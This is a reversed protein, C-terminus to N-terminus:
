KKNFYEMINKALNEGVLAELEDFSAKKIGEVGKFHTLLKTRTAPGVGKIKELESFVVSKQHKSRFATIAFRHVEDQLCALFNFLESNKEIPFMTDGDTIGRTKHFDDKVLGFLPIDEGFTELLPKIANVHGRGGDLIILDPLPLFKAKSSDLEGNKILDEEKYAENIRRSIVERMSQYDDAGEVTKINYKRYHKKAPLANQYVIQAGVSNQGSINSIDYSEIRAPIKELNLLTKLQSLMRNQYTESRNKLVRDKYLSERANNQVMQMIKAKEGRKPVVFNVRHGCLKGLWESIDDLDDIENSIYVTKPMFSATFYFQKVFSEMIEATNGKENELTFYEAGVAKGGRYYFVQICFSDDENYIGIYDENGDKASSVKQKESISSIHSIKDRLMAAKEFELNDSAQKMRNELDRVTERCNGKLADVLKKVSEAYEEKSIKGCCPASCEGIQYYLCPRPYTKNKSIVKSCSRIKFIKKVEDVSEKINTASMFPGLYLGGDKKVQRTMFARPFDENETIKVYPYQKDDKLLINYKPRHKKILNCELALAEAETDTIIYEFDDIHSVMAVTKPTHAASNQFYQSVRNKLVKSKGVYIINGDVNKMIYVGPCMPLTNLKNQINKNM